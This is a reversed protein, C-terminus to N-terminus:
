LNYVAILRQIGNKETIIYQNNPTKLTWSFLKKEDIPDQLHWKCYEKKWKYPVSIIVCRAALEFLKKAFLGVNKDNIHELVQLCTVIDYKINTKYKLFDASIRKINDNKQKMKHLDLITKNPIKTREVFSGRWGGIDIISNFSLKRKDEILSLVKKYYLLDYRKKEYNNKSINEKTSKIYYVYILGIIVLILIINM